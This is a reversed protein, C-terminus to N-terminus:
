RSSSYRRSLIRVAKKGRFHAANVWVFRRQVMKTNLHQEVMKAFMESSGKTASSAAMGLRESIWKPTNRAFSGSACIEGARDVAGPSTEYLLSADCPVQVFGFIEKSLVGTQLTIKRFLRSWLTTGQLEFFARELEALDDGDLQTSVFIFLKNLDINAPNFMEVSEKMGGLDGRKAEQQSIAMLTVLDRATDDKSLTNFGFRPGRSSAIIRIKDGLGIEDLWSNIGPLWDPIVMDETKTNLKLALFDKDFKPDMSWGNITGRLKIIYPGESLLYNAYLTESTGDKNFKIDYKLSPIVYGSNVQILEITARGYFEGSVRKQVEGEVHVHLIIPKDTSFAFQSDKNIGLSFEITASSVNISNTGPSKIGQGGRAMSVCGVISLAWLALAMCRVTQGFM